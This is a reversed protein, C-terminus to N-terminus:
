LKVCSVIAEDHPKQIDLLHTFGLQKPSKRDKLEIHSCIFITTNAYETCNIISSIIDTGKAGLGKEPEDFIMVRTSHVYHYHLNSALTIRQKEGGSLRCHIPADFGLALVKQEISVVKCLSLILSDNKEGDFHDRISSTDWQVVSSLEQNCEAMWHAFTRQNGEELRLCPLCHDREVDKGQLLESFTSKGSFLFLIYYYIYYLIYLFNKYLILIFISYQVYQLM